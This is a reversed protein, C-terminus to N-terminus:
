RIFVERFFYFAILFCVILKLLVGTLFGIFSGFGARLSAKENRGTILEGIVAGIFPLIILGAPGFFIGAVAGIGAGWMGAKSGGFKKTGWIPIVYDLLTVIITIFAFIWLINDYSEARGAEVFSTFRLLLLGAFGLPPGPIVPLLSGPISILILIIGLVLLIIDSM